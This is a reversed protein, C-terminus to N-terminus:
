RELGARIARLVVLATEHDEPEVHDEVTQEFGRLKRELRERLALGEETVQLRPSRRHNPNPEFRVLRAEALIDAVRQVNQRAAGLHRAIQSVTRGAGVAALVDWRACSQNEGRAIEERRRQYLRTLFLAEQVVPVSAM